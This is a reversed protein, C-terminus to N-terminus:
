DEWTGLAADNRRFRPWMASGYGSLGLGEIVTMVGVSDLLIVKGDTVVPATQMDAREGSGIPLVAHIRDAVLDYVHLEKFTPVLVYRDDALTPSSWSREALTMIERSTCDWGSGAPEATLEYVHTNWPSAELEPNGPTNYVVYAEGTASVTPAQYFRASKQAITTPFAFRCQEELDHSLKFVEVEATKTGPVAPGTNPLTYQAWVGDDVVVVEGAVASKFAVDDPNWPEALTCGEDGPDFAALIQLDEDLKVVSCGYRYEHDVEGIEGIDTIGYQNTTGVFLETAGGAVRRASVSGGIWTRFHSAVPSSDTAPTDYDLRDAEEGSVADVAIVAGCDPNEVGVVALNCNGDPPDTTGVYFLDGVLVGSSDVGTTFSLRSRELFDVDDVVVVPSSSTNTWVIRQGEKDWLVGTEAGYATEPLEYFRGDDLSWAILNAVHGPGDVVECARPSQYHLPFMLLDHIRTPTATLDLCADNAPHHDNLDTNYVTITEGGPGSSVSMASTIEPWTPTLHGVQLSVVDSVGAAFGTVAAQLWVRRDEMAAPVPIAVVARGSADATARGLEVLPGEIGLCAGGLGAPCAGAGAGELSGAILVLAGSAAGDVQITLTRGAIADSAQLTMGGHAIAPMLGSVVSLLGLM